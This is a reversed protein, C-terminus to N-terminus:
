PRAWSHRSFSEGSTHRRRISSLSGDGSRRVTSRVPRVMFTTEEAAALAQAEAVVRFVDGLGHHGDAVARDDPVQHLVVGVVPVLVEDEAEAVAGVGDLPVEEVVLFGEAVVEDEAAAPPVHM